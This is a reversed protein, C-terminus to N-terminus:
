CLRGGGGERVLCVCVNRLNHVCLSKISSCHIVLSFCYAIFLLIFDIDLALRTNTKDGLTVDLPATPFWAYSIRHTALLLMEGLGSRKQSILTLFLISNFKVKQFNNRHIDLVLTRKSHTGSCIVSPWFLTLIDINNFIVRSHSNCPKCSSPSCYLLWFLITLNWLSLVLTCTCLYVWVSDLEYRFYRPIVLLTFKRIIRLKLKDQSLEQCKQKTHSTDLVTNYSM